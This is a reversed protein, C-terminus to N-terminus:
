KNNSPWVIKKRRWVLIKEKWGKIKYAIWKNNSPWGIKEEAGDKKKTYWGNTKSPWVLNWGVGYLYKYHTDAKTYFFYTAYEEPEKTM